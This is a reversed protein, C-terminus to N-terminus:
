GVLEVSKGDQWQRLVLYPGKLAGRDWHGFGMTTGDHGSSAPLRKVRELGEVVGARTLHDTRAIAEALLRGIDYGAVGVPGAATRPSLERLQRRQPNHDSVTDCYVWGDWLPRWDKRAYGFMLASNAVVPVHWGIDDLAVAVTRAAVGLGLYVLGDPKSAALRDILASADAARPTAALPSIAGTAAVEVGATVRALEFWEAYHRGVPSRDYVVAVREIGRGILHQLLVAPEEELSGVQYHFMRESRTIAGGTYNICPLGARDALDRVVLGNDSISPGIVALVGSQELAAFKQEVDHASGAPLGAALERVLEIPRDLPITSLGLEVATAFSDGGDPQPFDFLLGLRVPAVSM